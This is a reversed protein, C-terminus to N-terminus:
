ITRYQGLLIGFNVRKYQALYQFDCGTLRGYPFFIQDSARCEIGLEAHWGRHKNYPLNEHRLRISKSALLRHM